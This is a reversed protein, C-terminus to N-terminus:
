SPQWVRASSNQDQSGRTGGRNNGGQQDEQSRPARDERSRDQLDQSRHQDPGPISRRPRGPGTADRTEPSITGTASAAAPTTADDNRQTQSEM